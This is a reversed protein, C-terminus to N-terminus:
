ITVDTERLISDAAGRLGVEDLCKRGRGRLNLDAIAKAKAAELVKERDPEPVSSLARAKGENDAIASLNGPLKGVVDASAILQHAYSKKFGWKEQCYADFTSFYVRYLKSDRIEALALRENSLM